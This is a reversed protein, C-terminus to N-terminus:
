LTVWLAPRVGDHDDYVLFGHVLVFGGRDVGAAFISSNGPSRLYWSRAMSNLDYAIRAENYQDDIWGTDENPRNGLHESDGFYRVVEELSLLFIYDDTDNGGPTGHWQNDKNNNRTPAIRARDGESFSDYFEGNLYARLTCTEWTVATNEENYARYELIYESLLLAKGDSVDLVRWEIGGFEMTEGIITSAPPSPTQPDGSPDGTPAPDTNTPAPDTGGPSPSLAGTSPSPSRTTGSASPSTGGSCAALLLVLVLALALPNTKRKRNM